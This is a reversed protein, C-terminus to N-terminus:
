GPRSRKMGAVRVEGCAPVDVRLFDQAGAPGWPRDAAIVSTEAHIAVKADFSTANRLRLCGDDAWDAEVHDLAALVGTDTQAYVGPLERVTLLLSVECWCPGFFVGGVNDDWDCTNVRENIWGPPLARGDSAVIPRDARSVFQSLARAIAELLRLYRVDGGARFLKLLGLGSHTCLGPASHKNQANAFLTGATRMGLRGFVSDAPFAHDHAMVWSALQRAAKGAADLWSRDGTAEWLEVFSEVLAAVSESDPAQMADAPGGTTVGRALDRDRYRRASAEAVTLMAADGFRRSARVLAAPIIAGSTSNGVLVEGTWQDVFHGFQGARNWITVLARALAHTTRIWSEPVPNTRAAERAEILRLLYFLADGQRRVLTWRATWPRTETEFWFDAAWGPEPAYKGFLLGTPRAVGAVLAFDLHRQVRARTVSGVRGPDDLAYQAILGGCWGTQYPHRSDPRCDTRYLGAPEDWMDRDYHEVVLRWAESWPLTAPASAPGALSRLDFLRDHLAQVDEAPFTWVCVTLALSQGEALDIGVDGSAAAAHMHRYRRPRVSPSMVRVSLSDGSGNEECFFGTEPEDVSQPVLLLTACRKRPDFWGLAPLAAEGSKWALVTAEGRISLRPIDAVLAPADPGTRAAPYRPSYPVPVSEFRNGGYVAGPVLLHCERSWDEVRLEAGMAVAAASGAVVEARCSWRAGGPEQANGTSEVHWRWEAGAFRQPPPMGAISEEL